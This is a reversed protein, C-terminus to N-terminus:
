GRNNVVLKPAVAAAFKGQGAKKAAGQREDKKGLAGPKAHVFPAAIAAAQMRIKLDECEDSVVRLLFDLPSLVLDAGPIQASTAVESRLAAGLAKVQKAKDQSAPKAASSAKRGAGPRAGGRPM